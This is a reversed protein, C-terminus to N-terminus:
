EGDVYGYLGRVSVEGAFVTKIEGQENKVLLQGQNDIGLSKGVYSEKLDLVKVDQNRNVLYGEYEEKWRALDAEKEFYSYEAEFEKMIEQLVLVRHYSEHSELFLSTAHPAQEKPFNTENVNVGIGVVIWNVYDVEANMQTLIGCVKKGSIVIDNPWKIKADLGTIRRIARCVCIAALLTISSARNPLFEPKLGISMCLSKQDTSVWQRNRRGHGNTQYNTVVLVDQEKEELYRKADINTSTTTELFVIKRNNWIQQQNLRSSIEQLSLIDDQHILRYGKNNVAEIQYGEKKLSSIAKWVATRSVNFHECMEQGSVFDNKERLMSLIESKM